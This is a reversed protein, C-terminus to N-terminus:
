FLLILLVILLELRLARHTDIIDTLAQATEAIVKVKRNLGEM